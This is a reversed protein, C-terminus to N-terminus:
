KLKRMNVEKYDVAASVSQLEVNQKEEQMALSVFRNKLEVFNQNPEIQHKFYVFFVTWAIIILPGLWKYVSNGFKLAFFSATVVMYLYLIFFLYNKVSSRIQGGSEYRQFYVFLLNNKDVLYKIYFYLAGFFPIMPVLSSFLLCNLFIVLSYSQNYGLDFRYDDVYLTKLM